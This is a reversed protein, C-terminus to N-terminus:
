RCIDPKSRKCYPYTGERLSDIGEQIKVSPLPHVTREM